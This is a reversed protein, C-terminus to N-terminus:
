SKGPIFVKCLYYEEPSLSDIYGKGYVDDLSLNKGFKKNFDTINMKDNGCLITDKPWYKFDDKDLPYAKNKKRPLVNHFGHKIIHDVFICIAGVVMIVFVIPAFVVALAKQWLKLDSKAFAFVALLITVCLTYIIMYIM